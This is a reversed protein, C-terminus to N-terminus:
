LKIVLLIYIHKSDVKRKKLFQRSDVKIIFFLFYKIYKNNTLICKQDRFKQGIRM